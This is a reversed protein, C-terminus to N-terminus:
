NAQATGDAGTTDRLPTVTGSFAGAAWNVRVGSIVFGFQDTVRVTLPLPLRRGVNTSQNNGSVLTFLSPPGNTATAAFAASDLAYNNTLIAVAKNAGLSTGLTWTASVLGSVSSTNAPPNISGGGGRVQFTVTAGEVPQGGADVVKVVIQQTLAAAVQGTQQDGSVLRLASAFDKSQVHSPGTTAKDRCGGFVAVVTCLAAVTWTSFPKRGLM